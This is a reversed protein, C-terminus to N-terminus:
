KGAHIMALMNEDNIAQSNSIRDIKKVMNKLTDTIISEPNNKVTKKVWDNLDVDENKDDETDINISM